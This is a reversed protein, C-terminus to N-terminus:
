QSDFHSSTYSRKETFNSKWGDLCAANVTSFPESAQESQQNGMEDTGNLAFSLCRLTAIPLPRDTARICLKLVARLIQTPLPPLPAQSKM